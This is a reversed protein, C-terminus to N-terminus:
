AEGWPFSPIQGDAHTRTRLLRWGRWLSHGSPPEASHSGSSPASASREAAIQYGGSYGSQSLWGAIYTAGTFLDWRQYIVGTWTFIYGVTSRFELPVGGGPHPIWHLLRHRESRGATVGGSFSGGRQGFGGSWFGKQDRGFIVSVFHLLSAEAGVSYNGLSGGTWLAANHGVSDEIGWNSIVITPPFHISFVQFPFLSMAPAWWLLLSSASPPTRHSSCSSGPYFVRTSEICHTAPSVWDPSATTPHDARSLHPSIIAVGINM